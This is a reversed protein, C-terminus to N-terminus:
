INETTEARYKGLLGIHRWKLGSLFNKKIKTSLKFQIAYMPLHAQSVGCPV